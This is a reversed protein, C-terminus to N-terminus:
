PEREFALLDDTHATEPSGGSAPFPISKPAMGPAQFLRLTSRPGV